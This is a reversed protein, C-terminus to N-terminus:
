MEGARRFSADVRLMLRYRRNIYSDLNQQRFWFQADEHMRIHDTSLNSLRDMWTTYVAATIIHENSLGDHQTMYRRYNKAMHKTGWIPVPPLDHKIHKADQVTYMGIVHTFLASDMDRACYFVGTKRMFITLRIKNM